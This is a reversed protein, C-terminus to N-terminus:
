TRVTGAAEATAGARSHRKVASTGSPLAPLPSASRTVHGGARGRPGNAKQPLAEDNRVGRRPTGSDMVGTDRIVNHSPNHIGASAESPRFSASLNPIVM